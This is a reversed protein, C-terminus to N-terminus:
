QQHKEKYKDFDKKLDRYKNKWMEVNRRLADMEKHLGDFKEDYRLKLDSLAEQYLDVIKQGNDAKMAELEAHKQKRQFFWGLFASVIALIIQGFPNSLIETFM